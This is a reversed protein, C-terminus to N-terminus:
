LAGWPSKKHCKLDIVIDLDYIYAQFIVDTSPVNNVKNGAQFINKDTSIVKSAVM